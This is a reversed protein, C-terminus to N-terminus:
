TLGRIAFHELRTGRLGNCAQATTYRPQDIYQRVFTQQEGVALILVADVRAMHPQSSGIGRTDRHPSGPPAQAPRTLRGKPAGFRRPQRWRGTLRRLAM